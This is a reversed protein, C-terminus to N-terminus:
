QLIKKIEELGEKYLVNKSKEIKILTPGNIKLDASSSVRSNSPEGIFPTNFGRNLDVVYLPTEHKEFYKDIILHYVMADPAKSDFFIVYYKLDLRNFTEGALIEKYQIEAVIEDEDVETKKRDTILSTIFYFVIFIAMVIAFVKVITDFQEINDVQKQKNIKNKKKAM